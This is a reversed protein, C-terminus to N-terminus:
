DKIRIFSESGVLFQANRAVSDEPSLGAKIQIKGNQNAGTQVKHARFGAGEKKFVVQNLGLTLVATEPLWQGSQGFTFISAQVQSGIPLHLSANDFYVRATITKSENRFFPEIFNIKAAFSKAPAAEPTIKVPTGVKVQGQDSSFINLLILAKRADVISFIAQGKTLYMGEKILLEQTTATVAAKPNAAEMSTSQLSASGTGADNVFGSYNSYISVRYLPQGTRVIQSVQATNMGLLLMRQKAAGILPSNGPDHKLLFLYNEQATMLEPSYIDLVRDGRNIHQYRYKIYLKEIRGEIRSSVTGSQRYDYQVSGIATLTAAKDGQEVTIVPISSIIYQNTPKLLAELPVDKIEAANEEKKVLAMGCIPCNGPKDRIIQPHMPCTYVEQVSAVSKNAKDKCSFLFISCILLIIYQTTKM